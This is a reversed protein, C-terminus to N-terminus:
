ITRGARFGEAMADIIRRPEVCDGVKVVSFGSSSLEDCLGDNPEAGVALIVTEVPLRIAENGRQIVATKGEIRKLETETFVKVNKKQFRLTFYAKTDADGDTAIWVEYGAKHLQFTVIKRIPEEDDVVLIRPKRSPGDVM